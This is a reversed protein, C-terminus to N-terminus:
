VHARGIKIFVPWKTSRANKVGNIMAAATTAQQTAKRGARCPSAWATITGPAHGGSNKPVTGYAPPPREHALGEFIRQRRRGAPRRWSRTVPLTGFAM